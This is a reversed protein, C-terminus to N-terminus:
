LQKMEQLISDMEILARQDLISLENGLSAIIRASKKANSSNLTLAYNWKQLADKEIPSLPQFNALLVCAAELIEREKQSPSKKIYDFIISKIIDKPYPLDNIDFIRGVGRKELLKGYEGM